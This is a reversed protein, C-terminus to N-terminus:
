SARQLGLFSVPALEQGPELRLCTLVLPGAQLCAYLFVEAQSLKKTRNQGENSSILGGVRPLTM